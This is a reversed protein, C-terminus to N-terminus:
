FRYILGISLRYGNWNAFRKKDYITVQNRINEYYLPSSLSVAGGANLEVGVHKNFMYAAYLMPETYVGISQFTYSDNVFEDYGYLQLNDKLTVFSFIVSGNLLYGIELPRKLLQVSGFAKRSYLGVHIAMCNIDSAYFGSYDSISSRAGTSMLGATYGIFSNNNFIGFKISYNFYSPFSTTTLLPIESNAIISSQLDKLNSMLYSGVGSQISLEYAYINSKSYSNENEHAFLVVPLLIICFIIKRMIM